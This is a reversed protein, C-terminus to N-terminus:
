IDGYPDRYPGSQEERHYIGIVTDPLVYSRLSSYAFSLLTWKRSAFPCFHSLVSAAEAHVPRQELVEPKGGYRFTNEM